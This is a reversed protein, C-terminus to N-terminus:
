TSASRPRHPRRSPTSRTSSPRTRRAPPRRSSTSSRSSSTPPGGHFKVGEQLNMDLKTPETFTWDKALRGVTKGEKADLETLTEYVSAMVNRSQALQTVHIDLYKPDDVVIARLSGGPKPTAGSAPTADQAAAEPVARMMLVGPVTIGLAAARQMLQRRNIRGSLVDEVLKNVQRRQDKDAV